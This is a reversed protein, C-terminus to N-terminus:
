AEATVLGIAMLQCFPVWEDLPFGKPRQCVDFFGNELKKCLWSESLYPKHLVGWGEPFGDVIFEDVTAHAYVVEGQATKTEPLYIEQRQIMSKVTWSSVMRGHGIKIETEERLERKSLIEFGGAGGPGVRGRLCGGARLITLINAAHDFFRKTKFPVEPRMQWNADDVIPMSSLVPM